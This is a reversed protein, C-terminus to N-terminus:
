KDLEIISECTMMMDHSKTMGNCEELGTAALWWGGGSSPINVWM